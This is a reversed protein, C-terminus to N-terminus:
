PSAQWSLSNSEGIAERRPRRQILANVSIKWGALKLRKGVAPKKEGDVNQGTAIRNLRHSKEVL